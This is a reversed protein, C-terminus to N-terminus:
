PILPAMWLQSALTEDYASFYVRSGVRTYDRPYSDGGPAIDKLLHTGAVTGNTVWPEIGTTTDYAAFFVLGSDVAVIPSSYEDSLSLPRHLLKTGSKTGDTVWLQTDRPGPGSSGIALEFYLRDATASFNGLYPFAEGLDAYPNPLTAVHEKGGEGDLRLRFLALRQDVPNTLGFYLYTGLSTLMRPYRGDAAFTYLRMTGSRTGDTKWVDTAGQGNSTTFFALPGSGNVDLPADGEPSTLARLQVTGARTGDTRWVSTNGAADHVFFVLANGARAARWDVSTGPGLDLLRVTGATTGDSRWVEAHGPTSDTPYVARIFGLTSGFATLHDLNSGAAGPTLDAVLRTGATTGNSVWLENGHVAEGVTFFLQEGAPTLQGLRISETPSPVPPFTKVAVTGASTGNSTWLARTGDEFNAAFALRGRFDVLSQPGEAYRPIMQTPPFIVKVRSPTGASLSELQQQADQQPQVPTDAAQGEDPVMGGCGAALWGVLVGGVWGRM